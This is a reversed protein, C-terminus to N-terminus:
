AGGLFDEKGKKRKREHIAAQEGKYTLKLESFYIGEGSKLREGRVLGRSILEETAALIKALAIADAPITPNLAPFLSYTSYVINPNDYIAILIASEKDSFVPPPRM